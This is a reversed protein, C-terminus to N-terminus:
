SLKLIGTYAEDKVAQMTGADDVIKQLDKVVVKEKMQVLLQILNIQVMPDTQKSLADVLGKRVIADHQFGALADLAALRVNTNPDMQMTKLLATVIEDDAGSIGMAVNVGRIRQSASQDNGLMAHMLQKTEALQKRTIEMERQLEALEQQQQNNKSIWFGIAGSMVLLAVAAAARYFTPRFYITRTASSSAAEEKLIRDFGAKLKTSPTLEGSNEMLDIVEKLEDYLKRADENRMLEQEVSLRDADSLKGDIYDIILVELKEKEM